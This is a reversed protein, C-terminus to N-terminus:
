TGRDDKRPSVGEEIINEKFEKVGLEVHIVRELKTNRKMPSVGEDSVSGKLNSVEVGRKVPTQECVKRQSQYRERGMMSKWEWSWAGRAKIRELKTNRKM